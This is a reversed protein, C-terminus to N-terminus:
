RRSPSVPATNDAIYVTALVDSDLGNNRHYVALKYATGTTGSADIDLPGGTYAVTGSELVPGTWGGSGNAVPADDGSAVRAWHLSGGTQDSSVGWTDTADDISINETISPPTGAVAVVFRVTLLVSGGGNSVMFTVDAATQDTVPTGTIVGGAIGLGAPLAGSALSFALNSGTVFDNLNLPTMRGGVVLSQDPVPGGLAAAVPAATGTLPIEVTGSGNTATFLRSVTGELTPVGTIEGTSRNLSTGPYASGGYVLNSGSVVAGLDVPAIATGVTWAVAPLAGTLAPAIEAVLVQTRAMGEATTVMLYLVGGVGASLDASKPGTGYEAGDPVM